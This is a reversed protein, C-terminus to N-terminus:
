SAKKLEVNSINASQSLAEMLMQSAVRQALRANGLEALAEEYLASALEGITTNLKKNTKMM